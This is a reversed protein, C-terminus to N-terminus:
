EPLGGGWGAVIERTDAFDVNGADLEGLRDHVFMVHHVRAPLDPITCPTRYRTGDPSAAADGDLYITAEFPETVFSVSVQPVRTIGLAWAVAALAMVLGALSASLRIPFSRNRGVNKVEAAELDALMGQADRYRDDPNPQYARLVTRNLKALIPNVSVRSRGAPREARELFRHGQRDGAVLWRFDDQSAPDVGAISGHARRSVPQRPWLRRQQDACSLLRIAAVFFDDEVASSLDVLGFGHRVQGAPAAGVVTAAPEVRM